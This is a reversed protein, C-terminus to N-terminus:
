MALIGTSSVLSGPATSRNTSRKRFRRSPYRGFVGSVTLSCWPEYRGGAGAGAVDSTTPMYARTRGPLAQGM